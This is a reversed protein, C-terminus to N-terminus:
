RLEGIRTNSSRGAVDDPSDVIGRVLHELAEALM